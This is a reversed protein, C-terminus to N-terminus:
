GMTTSLGDLRSRISSVVTARQRLFALSNLSFDGQSVRTDQSAGEGLVIIKMRPNACCAHLQGCFTRKREASAQSRLMVMNPKLIGTVDLAEDWETCSVVVSGPRTRRLLAGMQEGYRSDETVILTRFRPALALDVVSYIEDIDTGGKVFVHDAGSLLAEERYEPMDHNTLLCIVAQNGAARLRRTFELGSGDSLKVDIFMVDHPTSNLKALAKQLTATETVTPFLFHSELADRLARSFFRHNEVILIAFGRGRTPM